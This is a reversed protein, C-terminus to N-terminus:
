RTRFRQFNLRYHEVTRRLMINPYLPKGQIDECTLPDLVTILLNEEIAARSYSQGNAVVVPDEFWDLTLPCMYEAPVYDAAEVSKARYIVAICRTMLRQWYSDPFAHDEKQSKAQIATFIRKYDFPRLNKLQVIMAYGAAELIEVVQQGIGEMTRISGELLAPATVM